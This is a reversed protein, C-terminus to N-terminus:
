SMMMQMPQKKKVGFAFAFVHESWIDPVYISCGPSPGYSSIKKYDLQSTSNYTGFTSMLHKEMGTLIKFGSTPIMTYNSSGPKSAKETELIKLYANTLEGLDGTPNDIHFTVMGKQRGINEKFIFRMRQAYTCPSVRSENADFLYEERTPVEIGADDPFLYIIVKITHEDRARLRKPQRQNEIGVEKRKCLITTRKCDDSMTNRWDFSDLCQPLYEPLTNLMVSDLIKYADNASFNIGTKKQAENFKQKFTTKFQKDHVVLSDLNSEDRFSDIIQYLVNNKHRLKKMAHSFSRERLGGWNYNVTIYEGKKVANTLVVYQFPRNYRDPMPSKFMNRCDFHIPVSKELFSGKTQVFHANPCYMRQLSEDTDGFFFLRVSNFPIKQGKVLTKCVTGNNLFGIKERKINKILIGKYTGRPQQEIRVLRSTKKTVKHTTNSRVSDLFLYKDLSDNITKTTDNELMNFQVEIYQGVYYFGPKDKIVNYIGHPTDVEERVKNLTRLHNNGHNPWDTDVVNKGLLTDFHKKKNKNTATDFVRKLLKSAGGKPEVTETRWTHLLANGIDVDIEDNAHILLRLFYFVRGDNGDAFINNRFFSTDLINKDSLLVPLLKVFRVCATYLTKLLDNMPTNRLFVIQRKFNMEKTQNNEFPLNNAVWVIFDLPSMIPENIRAGIFANEHAYRKETDPSCYMVEKDVTINYEEADHLDKKDDIDKEFVGLFPLCTGAPLDVLAKVGKGRIPAPANTVTIATTGNLTWAVQTGEVKPQIFKLYKQINDSLRRKANNLNCSFIKNEYKWESPSFIINHCIFDKDKKNFIKHDAFIYNWLHTGKRIELEGDNKQVGHIGM